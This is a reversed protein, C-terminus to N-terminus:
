PPSRTVHCRKSTAVKINPIERSKVSAGQGTRDGLSSLKSRPLPLPLLADTMEGIPRLSDSMEGIPRLLDDGEGLPLQLDDSAGLPLQLDDSAGLPLLGLDGGLPLLELDGGLPLLELNGGLPLLTDDGAGLPMLCDVYKLKRKMKRQQRM